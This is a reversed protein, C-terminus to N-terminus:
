KFVPSVTDYTSKANYVLMGMLVAGVLLLIMAILKRGILCIIAAIGCILGFAAEVKSHWNSLKDDLWDAYSIMPTFIVVMAIICICNLVKCNRLYWLYMKRILKTGEQKM